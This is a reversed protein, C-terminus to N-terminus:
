VGMAEKYKKINTKEDIPGLVDRVEQSLTAPDLVLCREPFMLNGKTSCLTAKADVNWASRNSDNDLGIVSLTWEHDVITGDPKDPNIVCSGNVWTNRTWLKGGLMPHHEEKRHTVKLVKGVRLAACRGLAHGYCIIDGVKIERGLKDYPKDNIHRVAM